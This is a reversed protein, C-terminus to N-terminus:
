LKRTKHTVNMFTNTYHHNSIRSGVRHSPTPPTSPTSPTPPTEDDAAPCAELTTLSTQLFSFSCFTIALKTIFSVLLLLFLGSQIDMHFLIDSLTNSSM